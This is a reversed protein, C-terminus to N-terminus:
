PQPGYSRACRFGVSGFSLSQYNWDRFAARMVYENNYWSGGRIVRAYTRDNSNIERGDDHDYPYQFLWEGRESFNKNGDDIGFITSVWESVNGSLNLAGVWSIGDPCSGVPATRASSNASYVVKDGAFNNGWPYILGDPGRAAFEWEKETPLRGGRMECFDRADFWNVCIHPQDSASSYDSCGAVTSTSGYFANTVEYKDLWFPEEICQRVVPQEVDEGDPSGMPFCGKPVLVMTAGGFEQEFPLWDDNQTVGILAAMMAQELLTLPSTDTQANTDTSILTPSVAQTVQAGSSTRTAIVSDVPPNLASLVFLVGILLLVSATSVIVLIPQHRRGHIREILKNATENFLSHDLKAANKRTIDRIDLPLDESKPMEFNDVLVPIVRTQPQSLACAIEQRVWDGPENIRDLTGRSLLVLFVDSQQIRQLIYTDFNEGAPIGDVDLFVNKKGFAQVLRDFLRGAQYASVARRYSIFIRPM